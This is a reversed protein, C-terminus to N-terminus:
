QSSNQEEIVWCSPKILLFERTETRISYFSLPSVPVVFKSNINKCSYLSLEVSHVDNFSSLDIRIQPFTM